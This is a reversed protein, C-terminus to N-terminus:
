VGEILSHLKVMTAWNRSTVSDGLARNVAERLPSSVVGGPCWLYAARPGIAIAEPTWMKKLLPELGSQDAPKSFISVLLRSPNDALGILPNRAVIARLDAATLVTVRPSRRRSGHPTPPRRSVRPRSSSMAATSCLECMQM